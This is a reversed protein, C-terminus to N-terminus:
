VCANTTKIGWCLVSRYGSSQLCRTLFFMKLVFVTIHYSQRIGLQLRASLSGIGLAPFFLWGCPYSPHTLNLTRFFDCAWVHRGCKRFINCMTLLVAWFFYIEWFKLCFRIEPVLMCWDDVPGYWRILWDPGWGCHLSRWDEIGTHNSYATFAAVTLYMCKTMNM